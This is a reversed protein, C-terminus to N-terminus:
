IGLTEFEFVQIFYDTKNGVPWNAVFLLPKKAEVYPIMYDTAGLLFWAAVFVLLITFLYVPLIRKLRRFYFDIVHQLILPQNRSLLM